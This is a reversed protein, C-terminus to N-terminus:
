EGIMCLRLLLSTIYTDSIATLLCGMLIIVLHIFYNTLKRKPNQQSKSFEFTAICTYILVPIFLFYQPLIGCASIIIGKGMGYVRLIAGTTVGLVTGKYVVAIMNCYVSIAFFGAIWMFLVPKVCGFFATLFVTKSNTQGINKIPTAIETCKEPMIIGTALSGIIVGTLFVLSFFLCLKFAIGKKHKIVNVAGKVKM